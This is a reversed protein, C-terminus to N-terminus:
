FFIKALKPGKQHQYNGFYPKETPLSLRLFSLKCIRQNDRVLLPEFPEIELTIKGLFGPDIFGAFHSRFEGSYHDFPIVEASIDSPLSLIEKTSLIYFKNQRLFLNRYGSGQKFSIKQFFLEKKNKSSFNVIQSPKRAIWSFSGELTMILNEPSDIIKIKQELSKLDDTFIFKKPDFRQSAMKLKIDFESGVIFRLQVFKNNPSIKVPFSKTRFFIWLKGKFGEAIRNFGLSQNTILRIELNTRGATSKPSAIASVDEPLFLNEKLRLLYINKPLLSEKTLNIKRKIPADKPLYFSSNIPPLFSSKLQYAENSIRLDLSAPQICSPNSNKIFGKSVLMKIIQYPLVGIPIKKGVINQLKM